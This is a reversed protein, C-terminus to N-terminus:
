RSESPVDIVFPATIVEGRRQVQVWLKYRGPAPFVPGFTVVPGSTEAGEPHGHLTYRLDGSVALLHGSAGLYPQLDTVPTGTAQESVDVRIPTERRPVAPSADLRITLGGSTYELPLGALEAPPSFLPGKYGPAVIARQLMQPTGGMPLVDAILMYAGPPLAPDLVFSGDPQQEPHVHAFHALDRSVIFLHFLREHIEVFTAVRTDTDPERVTLRLRAIGGAADPEVAAELRYEGVRPPPIRVLPMGCIRCKADGPARIDPHMPCWFTDPRDTDRVIEITAGSPLAYRVADESAALPRVPLASAVAALDDAAFGLHDFTGDPYGDRFATGALSLPVVTMGRATLWRVSEQYVADISQSRRAASAGPRDREFLIYERGSRVGVGVGQLITRAAAFRDAADGLAAGPDDVRYHLHHFRLVPGPAPAAALGLGVAAAAALALAARTM